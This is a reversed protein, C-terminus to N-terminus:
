AVKGRCAFLKWAALDIINSSPNVVQARRHALLDQLRGAKQAEHEEWFERWMRDEPTEKKGSITM